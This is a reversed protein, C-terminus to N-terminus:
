FHANQMIRLIGPAAILITIPFMIFLILPVSMKASLKGIKEESSLLQMDRIDKSLEMLNEYLSTGYHVSQQLTACFMRMETMDMSRYLDMLGEELGSVEARRVLHSMLDALNKDLDDSREAIFKVSSEVTMGAQVCVAILDVFYPLADMMLKIRTNIAPNLLMAPLVLVIMFVFLMIMALAKMSISLVGIVTLVLLVGGIAGCIRAKLPLSKELENLFTLWPSNSIILARYDITSFQNQQKGEKKPEIIDRQKKWHQQQRIAMLVLLIGLLLMTLYLMTM